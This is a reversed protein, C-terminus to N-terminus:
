WDISPLLLYKETFFTCYILCHLFGERILAVLQVVRLVKVPQFEATYPSLISAGIGLPDRRQHVVNMAGIYYFFQTLDFLFDQEERRSRIVKDM